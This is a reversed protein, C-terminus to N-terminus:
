HEAWYPESREVILDSLDSRGSSKRGGKMHDMFQGLRSNILVHHTKYGIGEAIDHTMAGRREFRKRIVDFLYSDTFEKEQTFTDETYLSKYQALFGAIEAHDLNYGVFGTETVKKRALYSVVAGPPLLEDIESHPVDAFFLSDADLWFLASRQCIEAARMVSFAKHSFRM